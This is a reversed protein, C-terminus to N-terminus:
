KICDGLKYIEDKQPRDLYRCNGQNYLIRDNGDTTRGIVEAPIGARNLRDAAGYGDHTGVLLAGYSQLYYPNMDFFECIEVTEQRIPIRRVDVMLGVGAADAMRWLGSFVGQSGLPFIAAAGAKRAEELEKTTDILSAFEGAQRIMAGPFRTLLLSERNKVAQVTGSLGIWKTLILEMGPELLSKETKKM